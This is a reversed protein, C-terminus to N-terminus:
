LCLVTSSICSKNRSLSSGSCSASPADTLNKSRHQQKTEPNEKRKMSALLHQKHYLGQGGGVRGSLSVVHNRSRGSTGPEELVAPPPCHASTPRSAGGATIALDSAHPRPPRELSPGPEMEKSGTWAGPRRGGRGWLCRYGAVPELSVCLWCKKKPAVPTELKRASFLLFEVFVWLGSGTQGVPM